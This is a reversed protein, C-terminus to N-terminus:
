LYMLLLLSRRPMPVLLLKDNHSAAVTEAGDCCEFHNSRFMRHVPTHSSGVQLPRKTSCVQFHFCHSAALAAVAPSQRRRAQQLHSKWCGIRSTLNRSCARCPRRPSSRRRKPDGANAASDQCCKPKANLTTRRFICCHLLNGLDSSRNTGPLPVGQPM